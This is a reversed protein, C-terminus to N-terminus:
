SRVEKVRERVKKRRKKREEGRIRRKEPAKRQRNM